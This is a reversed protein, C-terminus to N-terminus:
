SKMLLRIRECLESAGEPTALALFVTDDGAISGIIQTWRMSDVAAAAAAAAGPLTNLVVFNGATAVRVTVELLVKRYRALEPMGDAVVSVIYKYGGGPAPVKTLGLDKIDRSVTAQTVLFDEETLLECLMEQTGINRARILELIKAQRKNKM